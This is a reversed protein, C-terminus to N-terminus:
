MAVKSSAQAPDYMTHYHPLTVGTGKAADGPQFLDGQIPKAEMRSTETNEPENRIVLNNLHTDRLVGEGRGEGRYQLPLIVSQTAKTIAYAVQLYRFLHPQEPSESSHQHCKSGQVPHLWARKWGTEEGSCHQTQQSLSKRSIM